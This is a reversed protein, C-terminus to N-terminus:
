VSQQACFTLRSARQDPIQSRYNTIHAKVQHGIASASSSPFLQKVQDSNCLEDRNIMANMANAMVLSQATLAQGYAATCDIILDSSDETSMVDGFKVEYLLVNDAFM